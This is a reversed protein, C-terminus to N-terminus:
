CGQLSLRCHSSWDEWVLDQVPEQLLGPGIELVVKGLTIEVGALARGTLKGWVGDVQEWKWFKSEKGEHNTKPSIQENGTGRVYKHYVKHKLFLILFNPPSTYTLTFLCICYDTKIPNFM